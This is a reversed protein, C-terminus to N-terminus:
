ETGRESDALRCDNCVGYALIVQHGDIIRQAHGTYFALDGDPSCYRGCSDCTREWKEREEESMEPDGEDLFTMILPHQDRALELAGGARIEALRQDVKATLWPPEKM